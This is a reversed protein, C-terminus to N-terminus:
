VMFVTKPEPLSNGNFTDVYTELYPVLDRARIKHGNVQKVILNEPALLSPVLEKVSDRFEPRIQQLNGTFNKSQAVIFGPHPM